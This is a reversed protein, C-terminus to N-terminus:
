KIIYGQRKSMIDKFILKLGFYILMFGVVINLVSIIEQSLFGKTFQGIVTIVMLFIATSLVAGFGFKIEDSRCFKEDIVKTSFVGSWFIITLPNSATLIFANLFTKYYNGEANIIVSTEGISLAGIISKIGFFTLVLVGFYKLIKEYRHVLASIGVISLAIYLADIILVGLVGALAYWMGKIVAENFIYICIPGVAIQLLMGFKFGKFIM